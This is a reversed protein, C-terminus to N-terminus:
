RPPPAPRPPSLEWAFLYGERTVTVLEDTGDGDLDGTAPPSFIWGGTFRPYTPPEGAGRRFAHLLYGGSGMLVEQEGDGDVDAAAPQAFIMLDEMRRPFDPIMPVMRDDGPAAGIEWGGLALPMELPIGPKARLTLLRFSLLPAYFEAGGDGDTDALLPSGTGAVFTVGEFDSDPGPKMSYSRLVRPGDPTQDVLAAAGGTVAYLVVEDDGDDDADVLLPGMQMGHGLTPLLEARVGSIEYPRWGPLFPGDPHRNGEARVAYASALDERLGNSGVVIEPRGDGDIDGVAPNSVSKARQDPQLPSTLEVPFGPLETGDGRWVHLHGDLGSVVIELGPRGDLEALLPKSLAGSELRRQPSTGHSAGSPMATPFGALREGRADFAYVKGERSVLVISLRGTGTIDGVVAGRVVTERTEPGSGLPDVPPLRDLPVRLMALGAPSWDVVHLTGDATPLVIEDRGDADLDVLLPGAEGSAGVDLPFHPLWMPDDFVFFSRRAESRLGEADTVSLRLTVSYRDRDDRSTPPPGQPLPLKRFDLTGLPGSHEGVIEGRAVLRYDDDEPEVGLAYELEYRARSTRPLRITGSVNMVPERSPSVVAFWRPDHLDVIPPIRREIVATVAGYANARGYGYLQDFGRKAPYRLNGWDPERNDLDDATARLLQYVEETHLDGIGEDRAASAVLGAVGALRSTAGSSCTTAPVTVWVRAGFNTCPNVGWFTSAKRYDNVHNYRISNVYLAHNYVSPFNHHYSFEDAASAILVVGHEYAFDVAFRASPTNNYAGLASAIVKAGSRASFVV